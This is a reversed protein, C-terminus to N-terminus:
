LMLALAARRKSFHYLYCSNPIFDTILAYFIGPCAAIIVLRM